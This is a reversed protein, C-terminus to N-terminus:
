RKFICTPLFSHQARARGGGLRTDEPFPEENRASVTSPERRDMGVWPRLKCCRGGPHAGRGGGRM